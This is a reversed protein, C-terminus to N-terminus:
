VGGGIAVSIMQCIVVNVPEPLLYAFADANIVGAKCGERNQSFLRRSEAVFEPAGGMCWGKASILEAPHPPNGGQERM